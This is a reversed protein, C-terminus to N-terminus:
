KFRQVTTPIESRRLVRAMRMRGESNWSHIWVLGPKKQPPLKQAIHLAVDLGTGPDNVNDSISPREAPMTLVKACCHPLAASKPLDYDLFVVDFAPSHDLTEIAQEATYVHTRNAQSLKRDLEDHRDQDDDLILVRPSM